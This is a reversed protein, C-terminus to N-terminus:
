HTVEVGEKAVISYTKLKNLKSPCGVYDAYLTANFFNCLDQVMPRAVSLEAFTCTGRGGLAPPFACPEILQSLADALLKLSLSQTSTYISFSATLATSFSQSLSVHM